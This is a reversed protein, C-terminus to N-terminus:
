MLINSAMLSRRVYRKGGAINATLDRGCTNIKTHFCLTKEGNDFFDEDVPQTKKITKKKTWLSVCYYSVVTGDKIPARM